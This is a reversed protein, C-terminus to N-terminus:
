GQARRDLFEPIEPFDAPAKTSLFEALLDDTIFGPKTRICGDRQWLKELATFGEARKETDTKIKLPTPNRKEHAERIQNDFYNLSSISPKRKVGDAVAAVIIEPDFGQALWLDVRSTDPINPSNAAEFAEVVKRRTRSTKECGAVPARPLPAPDPEPEPLPEPILKADTDWASAMGIADLNSKLRPLLAQFVPSEQPMSDAIAIASKAHNPVKLPDHKLQNIVLTWGEDDRCIFAKDCLMRIADKLKAADWGLDEMLYGDPVRMCGLLNRHPGTMFYLALLKADDPLSRIKKDTWFTEKVKGYSM